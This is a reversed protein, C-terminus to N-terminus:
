LYTCLYATNAASKVTFFTNAAIEFSQGASYNLWEASDALQVTLAGSIVKMTEHQSTDFRYEGASIVGISATHKDGQFGISKVKEDFYSNSNLM